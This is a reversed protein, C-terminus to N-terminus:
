GCVPAPAEAERTRGLAVDSEALMEETFGNVYHDADRVRALAFVSAIREAVTAEPEFLTAVGFFTRLENGPHDATEMYDYFATKMIYELDSPTYEEVPADCERAMYVAVDSLRGMHGGSGPLMSNGKCCMIINCTRQEM